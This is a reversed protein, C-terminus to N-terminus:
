DKQRSRFLENDERQFIFRDIRFSWGAKNQLETRKILQYVITFGYKKNNMKCTSNSSPAQKVM